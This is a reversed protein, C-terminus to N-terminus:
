FINNLEFYECEKPMAVNEEDALVTNVIEDDLFM